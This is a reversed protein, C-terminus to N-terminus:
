RSGEARYYRPLGITDFREQDALRQERLSGQHRAVADAQLAAVASPSLQVTTVAKTNRRAKRFGGLIM